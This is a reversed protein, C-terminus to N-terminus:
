IENQDGNFLNLQVNSNPNSSDLPVNDNKFQYSSGLKQNIKKHILSVHGDNLIKAHYKLFEYKHEITSFELENDYGEKFLEISLELGKLKIFSDCVVNFEYPPEHHLHLESKPYYINSKQCKQGFNKIIELKKFQVQESVINRCIDNLIMRPNLSISHSANKSSFSYREGGEGIIYFCKNNYIKHKGVIIKYSGAPIKKWPHNDFIERLDKVYKLNRIESGVPHISLINNTYERIHNLPIESWITNTKM